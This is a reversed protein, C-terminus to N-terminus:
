TRHDTGTGDGSAAETQAAPSHALMFRAVFSGYRAQWEQLADRDRIILPETPGLPNSRPGTPAENAKRSLRTAIDVVKGEQQKQQKDM